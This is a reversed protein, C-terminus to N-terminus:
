GNLPHNSRYGSLSTTLSSPHLPPEQQPATKRRSALYGAAMLLVFCCLVVIICLKRASNPNGAIMDTERKFAALMAGRRMELNVSGEASASGLSFSSLLAFYAADSKKQNKPTPSVYQSLM